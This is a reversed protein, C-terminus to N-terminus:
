DIYLHFLHSQRMTHLIQFTQLSSFVYLLKSFVEFHYQKQKWFDTTHQTGLWWLCIFICHEWKDNTHNSILLVSIQKYWVNISLAHSHNYNNENDAFTKYNIDNRPLIGKEKIVAKSQSQIQFLLKIPGWILSLQSCICM